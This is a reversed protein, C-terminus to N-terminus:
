VNCSNFYYFKSSNLYYTKLKCVYKYRKVKCYGKLLTKFSVNCVKIFHTIDTKFCYQFTIAFNLFIFIIALKFISHSIIDLIIEM